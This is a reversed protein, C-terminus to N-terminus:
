VVYESKGDELVDLFKAAPPMEAVQERPVVELIEKAFAAAVM